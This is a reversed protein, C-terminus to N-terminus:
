PSPDRVLRFGVDDSRYSPESRNRQVADCNEPIIEFSGGRRIRMKGTGPGKPDTLSEKPYPGYRDWVWESVNGHMDYLGWRNPELRGVPALSDYGDDATEGSECNGYVYLFSPNRGFSFRHLSGARAAYEWEAETPLRYGAEPELEELRDIFVQVDDWSVETVPFQGDAPGSSTEEPMVIRWQNWNVEHTSMCFPKSITVQHERDEKDRPKSGMQFTGKPIRVFTMGLVGSPPCGEKSIELRIPPPPSPKTRVDPKLHEFGLVTLAFLSTSVLVAKVSIRNRKIEVPSRMYLVPNSWESGCNDAMLGIRARCLASDVSGRRALDGYFRRSFRIADQDRVPHQMAVVAPIEQRVLSQAVGTFPAAGERAGECANLVVLGLSEQQKLVAGLWLGNVAAVGGSDSEFFLCGELTAPDFGGHGIFHVVHFTEKALIESLHSLTPPVLRKLRVLGLRRLWGLGQALERWEEEVGLQAEGRPQAAVVLIRIPATWLLPRVAAGLDPYRVISIRPSRSLAFFGGTKSDFLIEWPVGSLEPADQHIRLRLGYGEVRARALQGYWLGKVEGSFLAHFLAAGVEEAKPSPSLETRRIERVNGSVGPSFSCLEHLLSADWEEGFAEGGSPCSAASRFRGSRFELWLDFNIHEKLTGEISSSSV